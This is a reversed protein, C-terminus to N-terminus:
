GIVEDDEDDSNLDELNQLWSMVGGNPGSGSTSSGALKNSDVATFTGNGNTTHSFPVPLMGELSEEENETVLVESVLSGGEEEVRSPDDSPKFALGNVGDAGDASSQRAIPAIPISTSSVPSPSPPPPPMRATPTATPTAPAPAPSASGACNKKHGAKWHNV